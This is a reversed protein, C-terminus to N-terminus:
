HAVSFEYELSESPTFSKESSEFVSDTPKIYESLKIKHARALNKDIERVVLDPRKGLAKLAELNGCKICNTLASCDVDNVVNVDIDKRAVLNKVVWAQNKFECAITLATDENMDHKGFDFVKSKLISNIMKELMKDEETTTTVENSGHVYLISQLLTEGFGDVANSDFKPHNVIMDFLTPMKSLICAFIPLKQNFEHNIDVNKGEKEILKCAGLEDNEDILKHLMISPDIKERVLFDEQSMGISALFKENKIDAGFRDFMTRLSLTGYQDKSYTMSVLSKDDTEALNLNLLFFNKENSSSNFNGKNIFTSELLIKVANADTAELVMIGDKVYVIAFNKNKEVMNAISEENWSYRKNKKIPLFLGLSAGSKKLATYINLVEKTSSRLDRIMPNNNCSQAEVIGNGDEITFGIHSFEDKENRSFDFFFYQQRNDMHNGIYRNYYELDRCICWGTKGGGCLKVSSDFSMIRVIVYPGNNYVVSCDNANHEIYALLDEKGQSWEYAEELIQEISKLIADASKFASCTSYYKNKRASPKKDFQKLNKYWRNVYESQFAEKPTYEHGDVKELLAHKLMKKQETNFNSVIRNIFALMEAGKMENKLDALSAKSSYSVINKKELKNILTKNEEAWDHIEKLEDFTLFQSFIMKVAWFQYNPQGDFMDVISLFLKNTEPNIGYKDILPTMQKKNYM